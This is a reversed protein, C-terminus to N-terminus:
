EIFTCTFSGGGDWSISELYTYGPHYTILERLAIMISQKEIVGGNVILPRSATIPDHCCECLVSSCAMYRGDPAETKLFTKLDTSFLEYIHTNM